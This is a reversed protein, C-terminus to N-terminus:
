STKPDTSTENVSLLEKLLWFELDYIKRQEPSPFVGTTGMIRDSFLRSDAMVVILGEGKKRVSLIPEKSKTTLVPEGGEVRAAYQTTSISRGSIDHFVSTKQQSYSIKMNFVELIENATSTSNFTGDLLILRGGQQVFNLVENRAKHDFSKDPNIIIVIDGQELADQLEPLAKPVYGLRQTWVYFTQYGKDPNKVLSLLPLSLNSHELDFSVKTFKTHPVPLRYYQSNFIPFFVFSSALALLSSFILLFVVDAIGHRRIRFAISSVLSLLGLMFLYAKTGAPLLNQRNLWDISGLLLEAKGPLFIWFNSFVTSDTFAMVRGKGYKIGACQLFLGFRISPSDIKEPFFNKQSYDLEVSRLQYGTIVDEGFWSAELTCSSGFLFPPLYQVAPHPLVKPAEYVSLDGTKLDYTADYNFRLGFQEAVPNMYASTGFVNTHDGILFLGGGKRVFDLISTIEDTLFHSTPTKIILIDFNDLVESTIEDFNRHIKYFHNLYDALCYYNYGSKMGYWETDYRKTTWEWNSHKEDILIRGKKTKGPDHFGWSGVILFICISTNAIMPLQSISLRDLPAARISNKVFNKTLPIFKMYLIILPVFSVISLWRNWFISMSELNSYLMIMGVYRIFLYFLGTLFMVILWLGNKRHTFFLITASAGLAINLWLYFGIKELTITFDHVEKTSQVFLTNHSFSCKLGFLKLISCTPYVLFDIDHYRSAFKLYMPLIAAQLLLISGSFVCGLGLCLAWQFHSHLSVASLGTFVLIFGANYPFPIIFACLFLPVCLLYYTRDIKAFRAKKFPYISLALGCLVLILGMQKNQGFIPTLYLWSSSLFIVALWIASM